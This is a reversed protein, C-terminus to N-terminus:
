GAGAACFPRDRDLDRQEAGAGAQGLDGLAEPVQQPVSLRRPLRLDPAAARIGDRLLDIFARLRASLTLREPCVALSGM